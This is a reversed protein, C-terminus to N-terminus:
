PDSATLVNGMCRLAPMYISLDTQAMSELIKVIIDNTAIMDILNDDNTNLIYSIAWLCDSQM